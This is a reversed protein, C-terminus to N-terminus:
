GPAAQASTLARLTADSQKSLSGTILEPTLGFAAAAFWGATNELTFAARLSAASDMQGHVLAAGAVAAFGSLLLTALLRAEFLGYDDLAPGANNEARLRGFLGALTGVLYFGCAVSLADRPARVLVALSVLLVAVISTVLVTRLLRNRQRILREWTDDEYVNFAHRVEVLVARATVEAAPQPQASSSDGSKTLGEAPGFAALADHIMKILSEGNPTGHLRLADYRAAAILESAPQDSLIAEEARHLSRWLNMYGVAFAYRFGAKPQGDEIGLEVKLVAVASSAQARLASRKADHTLANQPALAGLSRVYTDARGARQLLEGFSRPQATDVRAVWMLQPGLFVWAGLGIVLGLLVPNPVSASPNALYELVMAIGAIFMSFPALLTLTALYGEGWLGRGLVFASSIVALSILFLLANHIDGRTIVPSIAAFANLWVLLLFSLAASLLTFLIRPIRPGISRRGSATSKKPADSDSGSASSLPPDESSGVKRIQMPPVRERFHPYGEDRAPGM